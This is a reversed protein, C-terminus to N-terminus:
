APLPVGILTHPACVRSAAQVGRSPRTTWPEIPYRNQWRDGLDGQHQRCEGVERQASGHLEEGQEGAAVGGLVKLNEDQTVLKGDQTALGL